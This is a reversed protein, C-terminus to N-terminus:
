EPSLRFGHGRWGADVGTGVPTAEGTTLLLASNGELGASVSAVGSSRLLHVGTSDSLEYAAGATTVYDVSRSDAFAVFRKLIRASTRRDFGLSRRVALYRDLELALTSM